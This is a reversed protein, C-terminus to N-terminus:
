DRRFIKKVSKSIRGRQEDVQRLLAKWDGETKETKPSPPTVHTRPTRSRQGARPEYRRKPPGTHHPRRKQTQEQQQYIAMSLPETTKPSHVKSNSPRPTSPRTRKGHVPRHKEHGKVAAETHAPEKKSYDFGPYKKVEFKKGTFYEIKKLHKLEERGVFTLADGTAAARGTRGIRHVYDEAFAPTDYNIVHSIGEVDIGRAAIDTAVLVRYQGQKFGALANQRQAQTRNSHIAISKIGKRLLRHSIKDAGHKTRSFVLVSDMGQKEIVHALLEMKMDPPVSYFHQSISEAPTRQEGIEIVAPDHQIAAVLARIEKSITASFLMTQRSAPTKAVITRVDNIFGMDFMRDAEDLVVVSVHSLDISRRNLHDLLRGPTAVVIDVGRRLHRLQNEMSMGGYVALTRPQVFRGYTMISDEIQQALERTPTLILAKIHHHRHDETALRQLIPLVFAATKGTGTHATGIIDRKALALPIARSQIETPATYGTALIGQVLKDSLGLGSFPM